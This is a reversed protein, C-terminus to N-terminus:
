FDIRNYIGCFEILQRIVSAANFVLIVPPFLSKLITKSIILLICIM